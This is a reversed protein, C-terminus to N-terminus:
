LQGNFAQHLLSQKLEDLAALRRQGTSELRQTEMRVAHIAAVVEEQVSMPPLRLLVEKAATVNFHKQAAGVLRGSVLNMGFGSNFFAALFHPSVEDGPRVVVLDACNSDPLNPPIM